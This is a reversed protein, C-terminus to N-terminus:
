APPTVPLPNGSDFLFTRTFAIEGFRVAYISAWLPNYLHRHCIPLRQLLQGAKTMCILGADINVSFSAPKM